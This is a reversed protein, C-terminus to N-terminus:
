AGRSAHGHIIPSSPHNVDKCNFGGPLKHWKGGSAELETLVGFLIEQDNRPRPSQLEATLRRCHETFASYGRGGIHSWGVIGSHVRMNLQRGPRYECLVDHHLLSEYLGAITEKVKEAPVKPNPLTDVGIVFLPEDFNVKHDWLPQAALTFALCNLDWRGRDVYEALRVPIGVRDWARLCADALHEYKNGPTYPAVIM